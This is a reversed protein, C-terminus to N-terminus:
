PPGQEKKTSFIAANLQGRDVEQLQRRLRQIEAAARNLLGDPPEGKEKAAALLEDVITM